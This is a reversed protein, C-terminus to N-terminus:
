KAAPAQSSLETSGRAPASSPARTSDPEGSRVIYVEGSNGNVAKGLGHSSVCGDATGVQNNGHLCNSANESVFTSKMELNPDDYNVNDEVAIAQGAPVGGANEAQVMAPMLLFLAVALHKLSKILM